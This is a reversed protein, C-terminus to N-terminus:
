AGGEDKWPRPSCNLVTVAVFSFPFFLIEFASAWTV